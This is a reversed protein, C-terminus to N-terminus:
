PSTSSSSTNKSARWSNTPRHTLSTSPPQSHHLNLFFSCVLGLGLCELRLLRVDKIRGKATMAAGVSFNSLFSGKQHDTKDVRLSVSSPPEIVSLRPAIADPLVDHALAKAAGAATKLKPVRKAFAICDKLTEKLKTFEEHPLSEATDDVDTKDLLHSLFSVEDLVFKYMEDAEAMDDQIEKIMSVVSKMASAVTDVM